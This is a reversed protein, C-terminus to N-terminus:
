PASMAEVLLLGSPTEGNPAYWTVLREVALLGVEKEPESGMKMEIKM